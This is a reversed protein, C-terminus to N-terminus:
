SMLSVTNSPAGNEGNIAHDEKIKNIKNGIKM